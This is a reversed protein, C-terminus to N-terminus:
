GRTSATNSMRCQDKKQGRCLFRAQRNHHAQSPLSWSANRTTRLVLKSMSATLGCTFTASRQCIVSKGSSTSMQGTLRAITSASLGGAGKGLLASLAEAFDGISIGRLYLIPILEELSKSRRAYSPVISSSFRIRTEGPGVRDRVRPARVPVPGIGTM